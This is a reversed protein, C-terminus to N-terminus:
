SASTSVSNSSISRQISSPMGRGSRPVRLRANVRGTIWHLERRRHDGSGRRQYIGNYSFFFFAKNRGNFVGPIYIPGGATGGFNNQRYIGKKAEFFGKSDLADNRLFNYVSGHFTNTGSKSAFTIM